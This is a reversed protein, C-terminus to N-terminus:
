GTTLTIGMIDITIPFLHLQAVLAMREPSGMKSDTSSIVTSQLVAQGGTYAACADENCDSLVLYDFKLYDSECL